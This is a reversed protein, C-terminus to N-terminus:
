EYRLAEAPKVSAATLSPLLTSALTALCSGALLAAVVPWPVEVSASAGFIMAVLVAATWIGCGAGILLGLGAIFGSEALFVSQVLRRGYGIARMMGIQQRREVVARAAVIGLGSVGVILGLSLYGTLLKAFLDISQKASDLKDQMLEAELGYRSGFAAGLDARTQATTVGPKLRLGWWNAQMPHGFMAAGTRASVYMYPWQPSSLIGIVNVTQPTGGAPDAVREDFGRFSALGLLRPDGVMVATGPKDRVADWVQRDSSYGAARHQFTWQTTNLLTDDAVRVFGHTVPAGPVLQQFSREVKEASVVVAVDRALAPGAMIQRSLDPPLGPSDTQIQYGGTATDVSAGAFSSNITAVMVLALAVVAFM